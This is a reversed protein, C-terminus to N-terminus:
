GLIDSISNDEIYDIYGDIDDIKKLRKEKEIKSKNMEDQLTQSLERTSLMDLIKRGICHEYNNGFFVMNKAYAFAVSPNTTDQYYLERLTKRLKKINLKSVIKYGKKIEYYRELILPNNSIQYLDEQKKLVRNLHETNSMNEHIIEPMRLNANNTMSLRLAANRKILEENFNPEYNKNSLHKVNERVKLLSSKNYFYDDNLLFVSQIANIQGLAALDEIGKLSNICPYLIYKSWITIFDNDLENFDYELMIDGLILIINDCYDEKQM